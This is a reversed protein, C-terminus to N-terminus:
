KARGSNGSRARMLAVKPCVGGNNWEPHPYPTKKFKPFAAHALKLNRPPSAGLHGFTPLHPLHLSCLTYQEMTDTERLFSSAEAEAALDGEAAGVRIM